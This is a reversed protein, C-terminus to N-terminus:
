ILQIEWYLIIRYKYFKGRSEYRVEYFFRLRIVEIIEFVDGAGM